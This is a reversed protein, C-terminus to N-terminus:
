PRAKIWAKRLRILQKIYDLSRAGTAKSAGRERERMHYPLEAVTRIRGRVLIEILSKYGLPNLEVDVIADRRFM